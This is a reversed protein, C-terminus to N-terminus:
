DGGKIKIIEFGSDRKGTESNSILCPKIEFYEELDNAKATKSYGSAEYIDRLTEKIYSKSYKEGPKFKNKIEDITSTINSKYIKQDRYEKELNGKRYKLASAREKPITYYYKAFSSDSLNDLILDMFRSDFNLSYIYKMKDTFNTYKNEIEDVVKSVNSDLIPNESFNINPYSLKFYDDVINLDLNDNLLENLKEQLYEITEFYKDSVELNSLVKSIYKKSLIPILKNKKKSFELKQKWSKHIKLERLSEKTTHTKFFEVIEPDYSFWEQGYKLYRRFYSHLNKEDQETGEPILFLVQCTPNETIYLGFRSKKGNDKTYGIKLLIDFENCGKDDKNKFGASRILYIM